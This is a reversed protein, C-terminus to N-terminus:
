VDADGTGETGESSRPWVTQATGVVSLVGQLGPERPLSGVKVDVPLPRPAKPAVTRQMVSFSQSLFVIVVIIMGAKRPTLDKVVTVVTPTGGPFLPRATILRWGAPVATVM